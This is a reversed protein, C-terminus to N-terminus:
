RFNTKMLPTVHEFASLPHDEYLFVVGDIWPLPNDRQLFSEILITSTSAGGASGQFYEHAWSAGHWPEGIRFGKFEKLNVVAVKKGDYEQIGSVEIPLYDFCFASLAQAITNLQVQLPLVQPVNVYFLESINGEDDLGTVKKFEHIRYVHQLNVAQMQAIIQDSQQKEFWYYGMAAGFGLFLAMIVLMMANSKKM